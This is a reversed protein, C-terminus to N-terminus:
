SERWYDRIWPTPRCAKYIRKWGRAAKPSDPSSWRGAMADRIDPHGHFALVKTGAPPRSPTVFHRLVAWPLCHFKFSRFWAEPWFNLKGYKRIVMASLYEQSATGYQRIIPEPDAEFTTRVYGLTGVVFSYCTAQGVHDGKTNWDNIIYFGDGQPYAFLEDLNDMILVDLDFFFVRQGQLGGLDDACLGAEKRYAYRNHEPAIDMAPEPHRIIEPNLGPLPEDSFLHFAVPFSTNRRIMAYLINVDEEGYADGWLISIIHVPSKEPM